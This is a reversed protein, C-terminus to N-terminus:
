LMVNAYYHYSGQGNLLNRIRSKCFIVLSRKWKPRISKKEDRKFSRQKYWYYITPTTSFAYKSVNQFVSSEIEEYDKTGFHLCHICNCLNRNESPTQNNSAQENLRRSTSKRQVTNGTSPPHTMEIGTSLANTSCKAEIELLHDVAIGARKLASMWVSYLGFSLVQSLDNALRNPTRGRDDMAIIDCGFHLLLHIVGSLGLTTVFM